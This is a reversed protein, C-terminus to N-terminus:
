RGELFNPLIAQISEPLDASREQLQLIQEKLEAVMRITEVIQELKEKTKPMPVVLSLLQGEKFRGRSEKTSGTSKAVYFEIMQPSSLYFALYESLAREDFDRWNVKFVPFESSLAGDQFRDMIAAVSGNRMFLRSYVIGEPCLRYLSGSVKEMKEKKEFLGGGKGHVGLRKIRDTPGVKIKVRHQTLVKDLSVELFDGKNYKNVAARSLKATSGQVGEIRTELMAFTDTVTDQKAKSLAKAFADADIRDTPSKPTVIKVHPHIFDTAKFERWNKYDFMIDPLENGPIAEGNPAYGSNMCVAMFIPGPTISEGEKRKRLIIISTKAAANYGQFTEKNLSISALVEATDNIYKRVYETSDNNLIGDITVMAVVGGPKVLDLCREIALIERIQSRRGAGLEPFNELVERKTETAGFPPNTLCVDFTGVDIKGPVDLFGNRCFIGTNGDGHVYMNMKCAQANREKWDTGYLCEDSLARQWKEREKESFDNLRIKESVIDFAYILFGGTGCFPDIIREGIKPQVAEVIFEVINRPTFYEGLGGTFTDSLFYEFAEGKVDFATLSLDYKEFILVIEKLTEDSLNITAKTPFLDVLMPSSQIETFMAQVINMGLEKAHMYTTLTFRNTDHHFHEEYMKAFLVKSLEDFAQAPDYGHNNRIINHCKRLLGKFTSVDDIAFLQNKAEVQLAKLIGKSLTAGVPNKLIEKREPLTKIRVKDLTHYVHNHTASIFLVSFPAITPLLRAYSIVQERDNKSLVENPGKTDIVLLPTEHKKDAYVVIDAFITKTKRGQNVAIPHNFRMAERKYGLSELWPLALHIKVEEENAVVAPRSKAASGKRIASVAKTGM